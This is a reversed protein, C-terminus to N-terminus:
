HRWLMTQRVEVEELLKYIKQLHRECRHGQCERQEKTKGTSIQTSDCIWNRLQIERNRQLKLNSLRTSIEMKFNLLM